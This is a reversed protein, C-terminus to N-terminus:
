TGTVWLYVSGISFAAVVFPVYVLLEGFITMGIAAAAGAGLLLLAARRRRGM